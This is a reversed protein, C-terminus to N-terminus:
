SHLAYATLNEGTPLKLLEVNVSNKIKEYLLRLAIRLDIHVQEFNGYSVRTFYKEFGREIKITSGTALTTTVGGENLGTPLTSDTPLTSGTPLTTVGGENLGTPLTSDTPLTSGTPLTTVGRESKIYISPPPTVTDVAQQTCTQSLKRTNVIKDNLAEGFYAIARYLRYRNEGERVQKVMKSTYGVLKLLDNVIQITKLKKNINLLSHYKSSESLLVEVEPTDYKYSDLKIVALLHPLLDYTVRKLIDQHKLNLLDLKSAGESMDVPITVTPPTSLNLTDVFRNVAKVVPKNKRMTAIDVENCSDILGPNSSEFLTKEIQFNQTETPSKIALSEGVSEYAIAEKLKQAESLEWEVTYGKVEKKIENDDADILNVEFGLIKFYEVTNNRYNVSFVAHNYTAVHYYSEYFTYAVNTNGLIKAYQNHSLVDISSELLQQKQMLASEYQIYRDFNKAKVGVGRCDICRPVNLRYRSLMQHLQTIIAVGTFIGYVVDFYPVQISVGSECTPTLIVVRYDNNLLFRDPNEVFNQTTELTNTESSVVLIKGPDVGWKTALLTTKKAQKISDTVVLIKKNGKIDQKLPGRGDIFTVPFKNVPIDVLIKTSSKGSIGDICNSVLDSHNADLTIYMGCHSLADHLNCILPYSLTNSRVHDLVGVIEDIVIITKEDIFEILHHLSDVCCAIHTYPDRALAIANDDHLHYITIGLDSARSITQKLLTNRHGVLIVRYGGQEWVKIRELLKQTKGSGMVAKVHCNKDPITIESLTLTPTFKPSLNTKPTALGFFQLPTILKSNELSTLEDIDSDQKSSQGWWRFMVTINHRKLERYLRDWKNMVQPNKVDGADPNIIVKNVKHYDCVALLQKPAYNIMGAVAPLNHLCFALHSKLPSEIVDITDFSGQSYFALPLEGDVTFVAGSHSLCRYRGGSSPNDVRVQFGVLLKRYDYVPILIGGGWVSLRGGEFGTPFNKPFDVSVQQGAEVSRYHTLDEQSYGRDLLHQKHKDSLTLNDLVQSNYYHRDSKSYEIKSSTKPTYTKEISEGM